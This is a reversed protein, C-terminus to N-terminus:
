VTTDVLIAEIYCPNAFVGVQEALGTMVNHTLDTGETYVTDALFLDFPSVVWIHFTGDAAPDGDIGRSVGASNIIPTGQRTYLLFDKDTVGRYGSLRSAGYRSTVIFGAGSSNYGLLDESEAVADAISLTGSVTAGDLLLGQLAQGVGWEAGRALAAKTLGEYDLVGPLCELSRYIGFPSSEDNAPGEPVKETDPAVLTDDCLGPALKSRGCMWQDYIVGIGVKPDAGRHLRGAKDLVELIGGRGPAFDAVEVNFRGQVM